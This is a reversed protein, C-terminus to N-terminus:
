AESTTAVRPNVQMTEPLRDANLIHCTSSTTTVRRLRPHAALPALDVEDADSIQLRKLAPFASLVAVLDPRERGAMLFINEVGQLAVSAAALDRLETHNLSLTVLEGL